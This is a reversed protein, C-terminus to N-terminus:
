RLPLSKFGRPAQVGFPKRSRLLLALKCTNQEGHALTHALLGDDRYADSDTGRDV